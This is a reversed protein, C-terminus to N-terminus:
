AIFKLMGTSISSVKKIVPHQTKCYAEILNKMLFLEKGLVFFIKNATVENKIHQHLWEQM